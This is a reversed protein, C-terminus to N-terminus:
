PSTSGLNRGMALQTARGNGHHLLPPPACPTLTLNKKEESGAYDELQM